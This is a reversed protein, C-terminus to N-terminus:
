ELLAIAYVNDPATLRTSIIKVTVIGGTPIQAALYNQNGSTGKLATNIVETGGSDVAVVNLGSESPVSLSEFRLWYYNNSVYVFISGTIEKDNTPFAGSAVISGNPAADNTSATSGLKIDACSLLVFPIWLIQLLKM